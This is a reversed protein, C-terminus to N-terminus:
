FKILEVRRNKSKNEESDNAVLPKESGFGKAKLRSADISMSMLRNLVSEARQLSLSKNHGASGTDDTHGEISLNLDKNDNLVKAIEAVVQQGDDKLTSKDTDFNIYLIAKGNADIAKKIDIAKYATITPEFDKIEMVFVIGSASNSQLTVVYNKGKSKFAYVSFPSDDSLEHTQYKGKFMNEKLKKRIRENDPMMGKYIQKAGAKTLYDPINRDFIYQDYRFGNNKDEMFFIVALKGEVASVGKGDYIEFKKFEFLDTIGDKPQNGEQFDYIDIGDPATIFPFDGINTAEPVQRWDFNVDATENDPKSITTQETENVDTKKSKERDCSVFLSLSLSVVALITNAKM